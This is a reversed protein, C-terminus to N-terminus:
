EWYMMYTDIIKIGESNIRNFLSNLDYHLVSNNHKKEIEFIYDEKEEQTGKNLLVEYEEKTFVDYCIYETEKVINVILYGEM